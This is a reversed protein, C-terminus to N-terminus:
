LSGLANTSLTIVTMVATSSHDEKRAGPIPLPSRGAYGPPPLPLGSPMPLRDSRSTRGGIRQPCARAPAPGMACGHPKGPLAEATGGDPVGDSVQEIVRLFPQAGVVQHDLDDGDLGQGVRWRAMALTLQRTPGPPVSSAM